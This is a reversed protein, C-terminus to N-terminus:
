ATPRSLSPIRNLSAAMSAGNRVAADGLRGAAMNAEDLLLTSGAPLQLPAPWIINADLDKKPILSLANLEDISITITPSLPLLERLALDLRGAVPSLRKGTSLSDSPCNTINLSLKGVPAEGCRGVVRSLLSLLTLEAALEDGLAMSLTSLVATRLQWPGALSHALIRCRPVQRM